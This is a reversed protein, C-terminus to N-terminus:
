DFFEPNQKRMVDQYAGPPNQKVWRYNTVWPAYFIPTLALLAATVLGGFWLPRRKSDYLSKGLLYGFGLGSFHALNAVPLIRFYTLPVCIVAWALLMQVTQPDCVAYLDAHRHRAVLLFGFMAYIVGSFGVAGQIGIQNWSRGVDPLVFQIMGTATAVLIVAIIYKLSGWWGELVAGFISLFMLNFGAHLLNGHLVTASFPRWLHWDWVAPTVGLWRIYYYDRTENGGFTCILELAAITAM